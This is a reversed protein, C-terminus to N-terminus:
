TGQFPIPSIRADVHLRDSHLIITMVRSTVLVAIYYQVPNVYRILNVGFFSTHQTLRNESHLQKAIECRCATRLVDLNEPLIHIQSYSYLTSYRSLNFGSFAPCWTWSRRTKRSRSGYAKKRAGNPKRTTSTLLFDVHCKGTNHSVTALHSVSQLKGWLIAM